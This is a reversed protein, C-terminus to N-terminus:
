IMQISLSGFLPLSIHWMTHWIFFLDSQKQHLYRSALIKCVFAVIMGMGSVLKVVTCETVLVIYATLLLNFIVLAVDLCKWWSRKGWTYVDSLFVTM